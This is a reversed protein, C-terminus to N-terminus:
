NNDLSTLLNFPALESNLNSVWCNFSIPSSKAVRFLFGNTNSGTSGGVGIKILALMPSDEEEYNWTFM